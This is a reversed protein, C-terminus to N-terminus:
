DVTPNANRTKLIKEVAYFDDRTPEATYAHLRDDFHNVEPLSEHFEVPNRIANFM